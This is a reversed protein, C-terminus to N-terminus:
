FVKLFIVFHLACIQRLPLFKGFLLVILNIFFYMKTLFMSFYHYFLSFGLRTGVIQM